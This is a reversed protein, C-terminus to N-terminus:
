YVYGKSNFYYRQGDIVYSKGKAYWKKSDWYRWGKSTKKWKCRPKNARAGKKTYLFGDVFEDRAMRGNSYFYYYKGGIKRKGTLMEGKANFFYM